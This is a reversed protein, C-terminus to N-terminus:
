DNSLEKDKVPFQAVEVDHHKVWLTIQQYLLAIAQQLKEDQLSLNAKYPLDNLLQGLTYQHVTQNLQCQQCHSSLWDLWAQGSLSNIEHNGNKNAILATKRLVAPLQRVQSEDSLDCAKLWALAERRYVNNKYRQWTQLSKYLSYLCFVIFLLQWGLTQPWFSITQPASTEVIEALLYNGWPKEFSM